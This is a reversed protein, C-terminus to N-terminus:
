LIKRKIEKIERYARSKSVKLVEALQSLSGLEAYLILTTRETETLRTAMRRRMVEAVEGEDELVGAGPMYDARVNRFITGAEVTPAAAKDKSLSKSANGM